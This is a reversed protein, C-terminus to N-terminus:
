ISSEGWCQTMKERLINQIKGWATIKLEFKAWIIKATIKGV